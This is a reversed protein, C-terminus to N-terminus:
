CILCSRFTCFRLVIPCWFRRSLALLPCACRLQALFIEIEIELDILANVSRFLGCLELFYLFALLFDIHLLQLPSSPSFFFPFIKHSSPSPVTLSELRVLRVPSPPLSLAPRHSGAAGPSISRKPRSAASHARNAVLTTILVPEPIESGDV